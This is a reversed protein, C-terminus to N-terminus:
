LKKELENLRNILAINGGGFDGHKKLLENATSLSEELKLLREHLAANDNLAKELENGKKVIENEFYSYDEVIRDLFQDVEEVKYGKFEVTFQKELVDKENLNAYNKNAM